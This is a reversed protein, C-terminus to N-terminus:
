RGLSGSADVRCVLTKYEDADNKWQPTTGNISVGSEQPGLQRAGQPGTGPGAIPQRAAHEHADADWHTRIAQERKILPSADDSVQRRLRAIEKSRGTWVNSLPTFGAQGRGSPWRPSPSFLRWQQRNDISM